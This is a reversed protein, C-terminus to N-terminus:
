LRQIILATSELWHNFDQFTTNLSLPPLPCQDSVWRHYHVWVVTGVFPAEVNPSSYGSSITKRSMTVYRINLRAIRSSADVRKLYDGVDVFWDVIFSYPILDWINQLTPFTGMSELRTVLADLEDDEDAIALKIHQVLEYSLSNVALDQTSGATYSTFGNKDFYRAVNRFAKAISDLDRITPLVGYDVTLFNGALGKLNKLKKLKPILDAPHRLDSMFELMNVKNRNVAESAEMALDGYNKDEIPFDRPFITAVTANIREIASSVSVAPSEDAIFSFGTLNSTSDSVVPLNGVSIRKLFDYSVPQSFDVGYDRSEGAMDFITRHDHLYYADGTSKQYVSFIYETCGRVITPSDPYALAELYSWTTSDLKTFAVQYLITSTRRRSTGKSVALGYKATTYRHTGTYDIIPFKAANPSDTTPVPVMGHLLPHYSFDGELKDHIVANEGYIGTGQQLVSLPHEFPVLTGTSIYNPDFPGFMADLVWLYRNETDLPLTLTIM